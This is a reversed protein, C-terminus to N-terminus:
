SKLYANEKGRSLHLSEVKLSNKLLDSTCFFTQQKAACHSTEDTVKRWIVVSVFNSDTM